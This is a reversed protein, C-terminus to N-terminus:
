VLRSQKVRLFNSNRFMKNLKHIKAAYMKIFYSPSPRSSYCIISISFGCRYLTNNQFAIELFVVAESAVCVSIPNAYQQLSFFSWNFFIWLSFQLHIFDTMLLNNKILIGFLPIFHKVYFSIPTSWNVLVSNSFVQKRLLKNIFIWFKTTPPSPPM